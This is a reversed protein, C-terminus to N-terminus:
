KTEKFHGLTGLCPDEHVYLALDGRNKTIRVMTKALRIPKSLTGDLDTFIASPQSCVACLVPVSNGHIAMVVQESKTRQESTIQM